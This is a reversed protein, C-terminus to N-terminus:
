VVVVIGASDSFVRLFKSTAVQVYNIQLVQMWNLQMNRLWERGLLPKRSSRVIYVKADVTSKESKVKVFIIRVCDLSKGCSSILETDSKQM